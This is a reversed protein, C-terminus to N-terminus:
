PLCPPLDRLRGSVDQIDQGALYGRRGNDHVFVWRPDGGVRQGAGQCVAEVVAGRGLTGRVEPCTGPSPYDDCLAPDRLNDRLHAGPVGVPFRPGAPPATVAADDGRVAAAAGAPSSGIAGAVGLLGAALAGTGLAGTFMARLKM